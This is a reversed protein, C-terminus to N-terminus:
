KSEGSKLINRYEQDRQGLVYNAAAFAQDGKQAANQMVQAYKSNQTKRLIEDKNYMASPKQDEIKEEEQEDRKLYYPTGVDKTGHFIGQNLVKNDLYKYVLPNTEKLTEMYTKNPVIKSGGLSEDLYKLSQKQGLFSKARSAAESTVAAVPGQSMIKSVFGESKIGSLLSAATGSPNVEDLFRKAYYGHDALAQLRELVSPDVSRTLFINNTKLWNKLKSPSFAGTTDFAKAVGDNVYASVINNLKDKGIYDGVVQMYNPNSIIKNVVKDPNASFM